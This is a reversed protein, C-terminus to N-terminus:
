KKGQSTCTRLLGKGKKRWAMTETARAQGMPNRKFAFGVGDLYFAIGEKWFKDTLLKNYKKAFKTRAALDTKTMLGKKRSKM